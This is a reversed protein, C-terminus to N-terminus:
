PTFKKEAVEGMEGMKGLDENNLILQTAGANGTKISLEKNSSFEMEAGAMLMGQFLMDGSKKVELWVAQSHARVKLKLKADRGSEEAVQDASATAQQNQEVVTEPPIVFVTRIIEQNGGIENKATFIITNLGTSLALPVTFNGNEDINVQQENIFLKANSDVSGEAQIYKQEIRANDKPLEIKLEPPGTLSRYQWFLYGFFGLALIVIGVVTITGPTIIKRKQKLPKKPLNKKDKKFDQEDFERRWFALLEEPILDLFDAYNRLFGKIHVTSDFLNYNSEELAQLFEKQIKLEESVEELQFGKELRASKLIQGVKKM